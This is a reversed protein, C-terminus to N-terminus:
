ISLCLGKLRMPVYMVFLIEDSVLYFCSFVSERQVQGELLVAPM